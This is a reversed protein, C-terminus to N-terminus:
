SACTRPNVRWGLARAPDSVAFHDAMGLSLVRWGAFVLVAVLAVAGGRQWPRTM